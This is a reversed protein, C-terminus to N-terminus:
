DHEKRSKLVTVRVSTGAAEGVLQEHALEGTEKFQALIKGKDIAPKQVVLDSNEKLLIELFAKEDEPYIVKPQTKAESITALDPFSIKKEGIEGMFSFLGEKIFGQAVELQEIRDKVPKIYKDTLAPIYDKKLFEIDEKMKVFAFVWNRADIKSEPLISVEDEAQDQIMGKIKEYFDSFDESEMNKITDIVRQKDLVKEESVADLSSM